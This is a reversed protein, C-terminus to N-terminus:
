FPKRGNKVLTTKGKEIRKQVLSKKVLNEIVRQERETFQEPIMAGDFKDLVEGEEITTFVEFDSILENLKM